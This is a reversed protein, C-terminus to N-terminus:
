ITTQGITRKRKVMTKNQRDKKSKRIRIVEKTDEFEGTCILVFILVVNITKFSYEYIQNSYWGIITRDDSCYIMPSNAKSEEQFVKHMNNIFLISFYRYILIVLIPRRYSIRSSFLVYFFLVDIVLIPRRYSIRSSFLVYFFLVDILM